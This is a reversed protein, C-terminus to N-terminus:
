RGHLQFKCRGADSGDGGQAKREADAMNETRRENEKIKLIRQERAKKTDKSVREIKFVSCLYLCFKLRLLFKSFIKVMFSLIKDKRSVWPM